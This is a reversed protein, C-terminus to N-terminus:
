QGWLGSDNQRLYVGLNTFQLVTNAVPTLKQGSAGTNRATAADTESEAEANDTDQAATNDGPQAVSAVVVIWDGERYYPTLDLAQVQWETSRQLQSVTTFRRGPYDELYRLYPIAKALRETDGTTQLQYVKLGEVRSFLYRNEKGIRYITWSVASMERYRFRLYPEIKSFYLGKSLFEIAPPFAGFTVKAQGTGPRNCIAGDVSITYTTRPQFPGRVMVWTGYAYERSATYRDLGPITVYRTLNGPRLGYERYPQCDELSLFVYFQQADADLQGQSTVAFARASHVGTTLWLVFALVCVYQ